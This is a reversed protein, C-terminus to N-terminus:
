YCALNVVFISPTVVFRVREQFTFRTLIQPLWELVGVLTTEFSLSDCRVKTPCRRYMSRRTGARNTILCALFFM